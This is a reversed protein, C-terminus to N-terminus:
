KTQPIVSKKKRSYRSTENLNKATARDASHFESNMSANKRWAQHVRNAHVQWETVSQRLEPNCTQTIAPVDYRM